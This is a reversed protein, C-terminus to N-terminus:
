RYGWHYFDKKSPEPRKGMDKLIKLCAPCYSKAAPKGCTLCNNM